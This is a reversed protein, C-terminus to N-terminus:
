SQKISYTRSKDWAHSRVVSQANPEELFGFVELALHILQLSFRNRALVLPIVVSQTTNHISSCSIQPSGPSALSTEVNALAHSDCEVRLGRRGVVRCFSPTVLGYEVDLM